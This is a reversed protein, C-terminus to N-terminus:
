FGHWKNMRDFQACRFRGTSIKLNPFPIKSLTCFSNLFKLMKCRGPLKQRGIRQQERCDVAAPSWQCSYLSMSAMERKKEQDRNEENAEGYVLIAIATAAVAARKQLAGRRTPRHRQPGRRRTLCGSRAAGVGFTCCVTLWLLNQVNAEKCPM